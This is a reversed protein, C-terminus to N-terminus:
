KRKTTVGIRFIRAGDDKLDCPANCFILMFSQSSTETFRAAKFAFTEQSPGGVVPLGTPREQPKEKPPTTFALISDQQMLASWRYPTGGPATLKIILRQGDHLTVDKGNDQDTVVIDAAASKATGPIAAALAAVVCCALLARGKSRGM